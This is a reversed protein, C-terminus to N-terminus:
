KSRDLGMIDSFAAKVKKPLYRVANRCKVYFINYSNTISNAIFMRNGGKTVLSISSYLNEVNASGWENKTIIVTQTISKGYWDDDSAGLTVGGGDARPSVTCSKFIYLKPFLQNDRNEIRWGWDTAMRAEQAFVPVAASMSMAVVLAWVVCKGM